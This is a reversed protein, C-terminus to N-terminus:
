ALCDGGGSLRRDLKASNKGEKRREEALELSLLFEMAAAAAAIEDEIAAAIPVDGLSLRPPYM